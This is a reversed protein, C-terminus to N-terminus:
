PETGCGSWLLFVQGDYTSSAIVDAKGDEDVDAIELGVIGDGTGPEKLGPIVLPKDTRKLIPADGVLVDETEPFDGTGDGYLFSVTQSLSNAVVVDLFGDDNLYGVRLARPDEGTKLQIPEFFYGNGDGRLFSVGNGWRNTVALDLHGDNDLDAKRISRPGLGAFFDRASVFDGAGDGLFVSISWGTNTVAIDPAGDSNFDGIVSMRTHLSRGVPVGPLEFEGNAKGFLVVVQSGPVGSLVLDVFGDNNLDGARGDLLGTAIGTIKLVDHRFFNGTGDGFHIHVVHTEYKPVWRSATTTVVDLHGDRNVDVAVVGHNHDGVQLNQMLTFGGKGDGKLIVLGEEPDVPLHGIVALDVHGDEDFDAAVVDHATSASPYQGCVELCYYMDSTDESGCGAALSVAALIALSFLPKLVLTCATERNRSRMFRMM